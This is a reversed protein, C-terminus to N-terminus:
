AIGRVQMNALRENIRELNLAIAVPSPEYDLGRWFSQPIRAGFEARLMRPNLAYFHKERLETCIAEYRRNLWELKDAFFMMHGTGLTYEDPVKPWWQPNRELRKAVMSFVAPLEKYEAHQHLRHLTSVPVVNIRTM